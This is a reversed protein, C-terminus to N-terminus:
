RLALRLVHQPGARGGLFLEGDDVWGARLYVHHALTNRCNVTLVASDSDYIGALYRPLAAFAASGYGLGQYQAGVLLGRLGLEAPHAFDNRDMGRDIKFFGVVEDGARIVHFDIQPDIEQVMEAIPGVFDSQEPALELHLVDQVDSLKGISIKKDTM